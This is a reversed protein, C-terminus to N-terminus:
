ALKYARAINDGMIKRKVDDSLEPRGQFEKVMGRWEHDPHPFDTTWCLNEAGLCNIFSTVGWREDSDAAVYCQRKFYDVADLSLTVDVYADPGALHHEIREVWYPVWGCGAELFIVRLNPHRELIGGGIMCLMAFMHEFPHSMVHQFMYNDTRDTGLHPVTLSTGEHFGLPTDLEELLSWMQDWGPDEITRGIPNPRMMVGRLGLDGIARKTEKLTEFIDLQPVLAPAFLRDRAVSCFDSAWNNYAQCLAVLLDLDDILGFQLGTTTYIVNGQIGEADMIALRQHPDSGALLAEPDIEHTGRSPLPVAPRRPLAKGGIVQRRQGMSDVAFRPAMPHYKSPLYELWMSIPEM